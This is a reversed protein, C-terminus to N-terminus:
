NTTQETTEKSIQYTFILRFLNTCLIFISMGLTFGFNEALEFKYILLCGVFYLTAFAFITLIYKFNHILKPAFGILILNTMIVGIIMTITNVFM